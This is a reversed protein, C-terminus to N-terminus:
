AAPLLMNLWTDGPPPVFFYGGGVTLLYKAMAEGELRKQVTEFGKELDPQFCSFLLGTDGEGQDYAYSRRIMAPRNRRDPAAMRVHSNLPTARGQSDAAFVPEESAPTGDLWRGDRRRGMIKEQEEASDQDWLETAMRIIRVVQYTGGAAWTPEGQGARVIVQEPDDPNGFGETFHFPNRMLAKGAEVRNEERRGKVRWRVQWSPALSRVVQDAAERVRATKEGTVQVLADGHSMQPDLLDGVFSPMKKLRRPRREDHGEGRFIGTGLGLWADVGGGDAGEVAQLLDRLGAGDSAPRLSDLALIEAHTAPAAGRLPAWTTGAEDDREGGRSRHQVAAFTGGGVLLGAVPASVVARRRVAKM